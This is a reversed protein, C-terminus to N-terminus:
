KEDFRCNKLNKTFLAQLKTHYTNYYELIMHNSKLQRSLDTLKFKTCLLHAGIHCFTFNASLTNSETYLYRVRVSSGVSGPLGIYLSNLSNNVASGCVNVNAGSTQARALNFSCLKLKHKCVITFLVSANQVCAYKKTYERMLITIFAYGCRIPPYATTYTQIGDYIGTIPPIIGHVTCTYVPSNSITIPSLKRAKAGRAEPRQALM